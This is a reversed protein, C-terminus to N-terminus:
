EGNGDFSYGGPGMSAVFLLGGMMSINKLVMIMNIMANTGQRYPVFHFLYTVPILFLFILLAALRTRFGIVILLGCGFEVLITLILAPTVLGAPIGASAMYGATGAFGTIKSFGSMVFIVALLIRGILAGLDNSGNM